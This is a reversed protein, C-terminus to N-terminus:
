ATASRTPRRSTTRRSSYRRAASACSACTIGCTRATRRTSGPPRSTSSCCRRARPRHRARRRPAPAPRRLYTKVRRDAFSALDLLGLLEDVRARSTRRRAATCGARSSCTRAAPRSTTPAASSASTASGRACASPRTAVDFGAVTATGADIPLLTTLMRLTTTKGAGNPGLFGFIEGQSVAFSVGRVAEVTGRRSAFQKRLDHAEIVENM